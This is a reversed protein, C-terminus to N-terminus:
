ENTAYKQRRKLIELCLVIAQYNSRCVYVDADVLKRIQKDYDQIDLDTGCVSAVIIPRSGIDKGSEKIADAIAGAPDANSGYGIECDTIIVAVEPDNIETIFRKMKQTPDIMPHPKGVTFEDEGMDLFTNGQSSHVNDLKETGEIKLNSYIAETLRKRAYYMAEYCVSGGGYIGRIYKREKPLNKIEENLRQENIKEFEKVERKVANSSHVAKIAADELSLSGNGGAAEIISYDSTGSFSCIVTKKCTRIFEAIKNQVSICPPKSIVVITDTEPDNNLLLLCDMMTIGNITGQIDRGGTGYAQSIGGGHQHILSSVEQIGTGSAGVIGISGKRVKNAFALPIGNIISTGCDPGMVILGKSHALKKLSLEDEIPVNDSYLMINLGRNLGKAAEYKAYDGACSIMLVNADPLIELADELRKIGVDTNENKNNVVQSLMKNAADLACELTEEDKARVAIVLDDPRCKMVKDDALKSKIFLDRNRDTGMMASAEEVGEMSQVKSSLKMLFVSDRYTNNLILSGLCSM